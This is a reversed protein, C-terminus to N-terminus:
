GNGGGLATLGFTEGLSSRRIEFARSFSGACRKWVARSSRAARPATDRGAVTVNLGWSMRAVASIFGAAVEGNAGALSDINRDAEEYGDAEADADAEAEAEAGMGEIAGAAAGTTAGDDDVQFNSRAMTARAITTRPTAATPRLRKPNRSLIRDRPATASFAACGEKAASREGAATRG